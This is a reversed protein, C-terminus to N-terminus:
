LQILADRGIGNQRFLNWDVGERAYLMCNGAGYSIQYQQKFGELIQQQKNTLNFVLEEYPVADACLSALPLEEMFMFVREFLYVNSIGDIATHENNSSISSDTYVAFSWPKYLWLGECGFDMMHGPLYADRPKNDLTIHFISHCIKQYEVANHNDSLIETLFQACMESGAFGATHFNVFAPKPNQDVIQAIAKYISNFSYLNGYEDFIRIFYYHGRFFMGFSHAERFPEYVEYSDMGKQPHRTAGLVKSLQSQVLSEGGESLPPLVGSVIEAYLKGVSYALKAATEVQNHTHIWTPKEFEIGFNGITSLPARYALFRQRSYEMLWSAGDLEDAYRLLENQLLKGKGSVFERVNKETRLYSEEQVIPEIAELFQTTSDELTPVPLPQSPM